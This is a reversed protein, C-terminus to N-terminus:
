SGAGYVGEQEREMANKLLREVLENVPVGRAEWLFPYMSISTFGPMTNIENFVVQGSEEEVFFDVRALGWGDVAKFIEVAARRIQGAADGPLEPDAVTRSEPNNYKADYDYFSAASLVEGVGSARPAVGGLVACEVERGVITEEVLIRRSHRAAERLGSELEGRNEARTVGCSSGSSAPKVFVPYALREEVRRVAQAMGNLEERRVLVYDAQRIGLREVIQKTYAKDMSLASALIGCGVYPIQALELLGQIAGDEGGAGHLAPFVVDVPWFVPGSKEMLWVGRRSADPSLLATTGGQQWRNEEIRDVGDTKVWRGEKTIGILLLEYRQRDIAKIITVASRCSVEHESSRGGFLVLLHKREM